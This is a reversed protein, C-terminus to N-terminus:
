SSSRDSSSGKQSVRTLSAMQYEPECFKGYERQQKNTQKPVQSVNIDM